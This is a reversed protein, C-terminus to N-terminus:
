DTKVAIGQHQFNRGTLEGTLEGTLDETLEAVLDGIGDRGATVKMLGTIGLKGVDQGSQLDRCDIADQEVEPQRRILQGIM